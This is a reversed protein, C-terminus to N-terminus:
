LLYIFFVYIKTEYNLFTNRIDFLTKKERTLM